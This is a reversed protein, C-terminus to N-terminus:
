LVAIRKHLLVTLKKFGNSLNPVAKIRLVQM